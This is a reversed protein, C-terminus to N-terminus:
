GRLSRRDRGGYTLLGFIIIIDLFFITLTWGPHAPLLVFQALLNLAAFGIGAWRALESERFVGIGALLQAAGLVILVWGLTKLDTFVFEINRTYITSNDVAAIGALLNLVGVVMLMIGAFLIWGKGPDVEYSSDDAMRKPIEPKTKTM